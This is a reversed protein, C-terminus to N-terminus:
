VAESERHALELHRDIRGELAQGDAAALGSAGDCSRQVAQESLTRWKACCACLGMAAALLLYTVSLSLWVRSPADAAWVLPVGVPWLLCVVLAGM